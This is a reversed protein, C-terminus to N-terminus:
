RADSLGVRTVRVIPFVMKPAILSSLSTSQAMMNISSILQSTPLASLDLGVGM